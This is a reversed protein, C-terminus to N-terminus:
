LPRKEPNGKEKTFIGATNDERASSAPNRPFKSEIFRARVKKATATTAIIDGTKPCAPSPANV